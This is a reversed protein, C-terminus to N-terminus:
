EGKPRNARLYLSGSLHQIVPLRELAGGIKRALDIFSSPM